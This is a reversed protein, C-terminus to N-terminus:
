TIPQFSGQNIMENQLLGGGWHGFVPLVTYCYTQSLFISPYEQLVSFFPM